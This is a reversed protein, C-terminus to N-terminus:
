CVVNFFHCHAFACVYLSFMLACLVYACLAVNPSILVHCVEDMTQNDGVGPCSANSMCHFRLRYLGFSAFTSISM